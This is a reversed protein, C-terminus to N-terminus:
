GFRDRNEGITMRIRRNLKLDNIIENGSIKLNITQNVINGESGSSSGKYMRDIKSVTPGPNDHPIAWISEHGGPNDGIRILQEGNTTLLKGSAASIEGGTAASIIGGKAMGGTHVTRIEHVTVIKKPISNLASKIQKAASRANAGMANCQKSWQKGLDVMTDYVDQLASAFEKRFAKCTDQANNAMEAGIESWQEGLDVMTDYIDQLATGFMERSESTITESTAIMAAGQESWQTALDVMTDYIDQLTTAFTDRVASTIINTTENISTGVTGWVQALSLAWTGMSQITASWVTVIAPGVSNMTTSLVAFVSSMAPVASNVLTAMATMTTNWVTSIDTFVKIVAAQMDTFAKQVAQSATQAAGEMDGFPGTQLEGKKIMEKEGESGKTVTLSEGDGQPVQYTDGEPVGKPITFAAPDIKGGHPGLPTHNTGEMSFDFGGGPFGGDGAGEATHGGVFADYLASWAGKGAKWALVAANVPISFVKELAARTSDIASTVPQVISTNLDAALEAATYLQDDATGSQATVIAKGVTTVLETLGGFIDGTLIKQLWPNGDWLSKLVGYAWDIAGVIPDVIMTQFQSKLKDLSFKDGFGRDPFTEMEAENFGGATSSGIGRGNLLDMLGGIPDAILKKLTVLTPVSNFFTVLVNQFQRELDAGDKAGFLGALFAEGIDAIKNITIGITGIPDKNFAEFWPGFVGQIGLILPDIMNMRIWTAMNKMNNLNIVETIGVRLATGAAKWDIGQIGAALGKAGETIKDLLPQLIGAGSKGIKMSGFYENKTEGSDPDLITGSTWANLAKNENVQAKLDAALGDLYAALDPKGEKRLMDTLGPHDAVFQAVAKNFAPQSAKSNKEVVKALDDFVDKGPLIDELSSALANRMKKVLKPDVELGLKSWVDIKEIAKFRAEVEDLQTLSDELADFFDKAEDKLKKGGKGTTIGLLKFFDKREGKDGFAVDRFLDNASDRFEQVAKQAEELAKQQKESMEVTADGMEKSGGVWINKLGTFDGTILAHISNGVKAFLEMTTKLIPHINGIKVGVENIIDGVGGWNNKWAEVAIIIAAIPAAIKILKGLFGSVAAGAATLAGGLKSGAVGFKGMATTNKGVTPALTSLAGNATLTSTAVGANSATLLENSTIMLAQEAKAIRQAKSLQLYSSNALLNSQALGINSRKLVMQMAEQEAQAERLTKYAARLKVIGNITLIFFPVMDFMSLMLNRITMRAWRNAKALENVADKYDKSNKGSEKLARDVEGQAEAVATSTQRWMSLMGVFEAGATTMGIVGFALGKLGKSVGQQAQIVKQHSSAVKDQIMMLKEQSMGLQQTSKNVQTIGSNVQSFGNAGGQNTVKILYELTYTDRGGGFSM